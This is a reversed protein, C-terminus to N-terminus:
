GKGEEKKWPVSRLPPYYAFANAMMMAAYLPMAKRISPKRPHLKMYEEKQARETENRLIAQAKREEFSGRMKAQGAM